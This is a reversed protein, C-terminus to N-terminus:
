AALRAVAAIGMTTDAGKVALMVPFPAQGVARGVRTRTGWIEALGIVGAIAVGHVAGILAGLRLSRRTAVGLLGSYVVGTLAGALLVRCYLRVRRRTGAKM